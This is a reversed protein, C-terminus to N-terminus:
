PKAIGGNANMKQLLRNMLVTSEPYVQRELQFYEVAKQANNVQLSLLGLHAYLGPPVGQNKAKAKEIEDVKLGIRSIGKELMRADPTNSSKCLMLASNINGGHIQDRVNNLLNEPSKGARKLVIYREVFLFITILSLLGIPIMLFGGQQVMQWLNLTDVKTQAEAAAEAVPATLTTDGGVVAQLIIGLM